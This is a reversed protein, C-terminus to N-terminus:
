LGGDASGIMGEFPEVHLQVSPAKVAVAAVYTPIDSLDHLTWEAREPAPGGGTQSLQIPRGPAITVAFADLPHSLGDGLGKIYAEKRTWCQLFALERVSEPLSQIELRERQSFFREAIAEADPVPRIVEIDVGIDIGAAVAFLAHEQSHSVNFFVEGGGCESSLFPKGKDGYCFRLMGPAIGSPIGLIARLVGRATIFRNRDREFAFRAARDHEDDSLTAELRRRADPEIDLSGYWIHLPITPDSPLHTM